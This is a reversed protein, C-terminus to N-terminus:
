DEALALIAEFATVYEYNVYGQEIHYKFLELESPLLRLIYQMPLIKIKDEASM